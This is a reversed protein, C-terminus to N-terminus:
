PVTVTRMTPAAPPGPPSDTGAGGNPMSIHIHDIYHSPNSTFGQGNGFGDWTEAWVWESVDPGYAFNVYNGALIPSAGKPTIWWRLIGDRCTPCSSAKMYVEFRYWLGPVIPVDTVNAFCQDVDYGGCQNLNYPLQTIFFLRGQSSTQPKQWLFAGNQNQRGRVFFLKNAGVNNGNFEPNSRWWLGVYIEKLTTPTTFHLETGGTAATYVMTSRVVTSPSLPASGDSQVTLSGGATGYPDFLQGGCTPTDFGCDLLVSSGSPENIWVGAAESHTISLGFTLTLVAVITALRKSAHFTANGDM